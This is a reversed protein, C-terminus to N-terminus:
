GAWERALEHGAHEAASVLDEQIVGHARSSSDFYWWIAQVFGVAKKCHTTPCCSLLCLLMSAAQLPQALLMCPGNLLQLALLPSGHLGQLLLMGSLKLLHLLMAPLREFCSDSAAAMSVM